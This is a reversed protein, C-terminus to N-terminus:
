RILDDLVFSDHKDAIVNGDADRPAPREVNDPAGEAPADLSGRVGCGATILSMVCTLALIKFRVRMSSPQEQEPPGCHSDTVAM